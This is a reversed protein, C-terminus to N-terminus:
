LSSYGTGFDDLVLAFGATRLAHLRELVAASGDLLTAEVIELKFDVPRLGHQGVLAALRDVLGPEAFLRPAINVSMTVDAAAAHAHRWGALHVAARSVVAYTLPAILGAEEAVPLFRDPGLLGREAHRWRVLAEFGELAGDD